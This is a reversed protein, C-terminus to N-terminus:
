ICYSLGAPIWMGPAGPELEFTVIVRGEHIVLFTPNRQEPYEGYVIEDDPSEKHTRLYDRAIEAPEGEIPTSDLDTIAVSGGACEHEPSRWYGAWDVVTVSATVPAGFGDPGDPRCFVERVGPGISLVMVRLEGPYLRHIDAFWMATDAQNEVVFSVGDPQADVEPDRVVTLDDECTIRAFAPPDDVRDDTITPLAPQGGPARRPSEGSAALWVGGAVAGFMAFAVVGSVVRRRRERRRARSLLADIGRRPEDGAVARRFRDGLEPM